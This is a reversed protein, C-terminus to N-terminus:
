GVSRHQLEAGERTLHKEAVQAIVLLRGLVRLHMSFLNKLHAATDHLTAELEPAAPKWNSVYESLTIKGRPHAFPYEIDHLEAHWKAMADQFEGALASIEADIKAPDSHNQRNQLLASAAGLRTDTDLMSPLCRGLRAYLGILRQAEAFLEPANDLQPAFAAWNLLELGSSVRLRITSIFKGLEASMSALTASALDLRAATDSTRQDIRLDIPLGYETPDLEFGVRFLHLAVTLKAVRTRAENCNASLQEGDTLLRLSLDHSERWRTRAADTAPLASLVADPEFLPVIMFDIKGFFHQIAAAAEADADNQRIIWDTPVISGDAIELGLVKEYHRHTLAKSLQEFDSFLESAPGTMRFVGPEDLKRIMRVRDADCPHTDFWGTRGSVLREGLKSQERVVPDSVARREILLPLDDPLQENVLSRQFDDSAQEAALSLVGLRLMSSEFSDSGAVKAEYADAHYEMQRLMFCSIAHGLHMLVWLLQRTLWVGARAVLLVIAIALHPAGAGSLRALRVDWQDREYVVRAFWGNIQRVLYTLRMGAGQTFHGLEHALVGAFQRMDLGAALPLGITLVLDKSLLGRRLSASANVQCDVSVHRPMPARVLRCIQEIFAFLIPERHSELIPPPVPRPGRSFLPKVMFIIMICGAVAPGLYGILFTFLGDEFFEVNHELHYAVGWAILVITALYVMPLLVMAFAVAALGAKYFLSIHTPSIDGTFAQLPLKDSPDSTSGVAGGVPKAARM